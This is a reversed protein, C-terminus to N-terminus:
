RKITEETKNYKYNPDETVSEDDQLWDYDAMKM